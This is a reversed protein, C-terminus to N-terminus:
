ATKEATHPAIWATTLPMTEAIALLRCATHPVMPSPTVVAKLPMLSLSFALKSTSNVSVEQM